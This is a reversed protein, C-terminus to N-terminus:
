KDDKGPLVDMKNLPFLRLIPEGLIYMKNLPGWFRSDFSESRNDGLVYYEDASLKTEYIGKSQHTVYSSDVVLGDPNETNKITIVSDKITITEGPLGIVRKIYTKSTDGPYKFVIVTNRKPTGIEYILKNVILYDGTAFTPDMSRGEVLYPEAVYARFPLVVGLAIIIFLIIEKVIEKIPIKQPAVPPTPPIPPTSHTFVKKEENKEINMWNTFFSMM